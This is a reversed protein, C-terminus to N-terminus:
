FRAPVKITMYRYDTANEDGTWIIYYLDTTTRYHTTTNESYEEMYYGFNATVDIEVMQNSIEEPKLDAFNKYGALSSFADPGNYVALSVGILAIVISVILSVHFSKKKLAELM